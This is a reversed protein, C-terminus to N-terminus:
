CIMRVGGGTSTDRGASTLTDDSGGGGTRTEGGASTLMDDSGGERERTKEQLPLCIMMMRV